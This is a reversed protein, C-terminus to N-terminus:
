EFIYLESPQTRRLPVIKFNEGAVIGNGKLAMEVTKLALEPHNNDKSLHCLWLFKLNKPFHASLFQAVESNCLHGTPSAIRKKLHM